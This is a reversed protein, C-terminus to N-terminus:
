TGLSLAWTPFARNSLGLESRILDVLFIRVPGFADNLVKGLVYVDVPFPDYVNREADIKHLKFEGQADLHSEYMEPFAFHCRSSRAVRHREQYTPFCVSEGFDIYLYKVSVDIRDYRAPPERAGKRLGVIINNLPNIGFPFMSSPDMLVNEPAIDRYDSYQYM